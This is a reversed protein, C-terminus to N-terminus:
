KQQVHQKGVIYRPRHPPPLLVCMEEFIFSNLSSMKLFIFGNVMALQSDPNIKNTLNIGKPWFLTEKEIEVTLNERINLCVSVTSIAIIRQVQGRGQLCRQTDHFCWIQWVKKEWRRFCIHPLFLGTGTFGEINKEM